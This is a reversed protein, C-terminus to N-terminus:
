FGSILSLRSLTYDVGPRVRCFTFFSSIKPHRYLCGEKPVNILVTNVECNSVLLGDDTRTATVISM